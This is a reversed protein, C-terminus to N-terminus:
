RRFSRQHLRFYSGKLNKITKSKTKPQFVKDAIEVANDGSIRIIGISGGGQATCIAAITDSM